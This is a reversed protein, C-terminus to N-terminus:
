ACSCTLGEILAKQVVHARGQILHDLEAWMEWSNPMSSIVDFTLLKEAGSVQLPHPPFLTVATATVWIDSARHGRANGQSGTGWLIWPLPAGQM